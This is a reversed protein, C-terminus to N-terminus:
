SKSLSKKLGVGNELQWLDEYEELPPFKAGARLIFEDAAFVLRSGYDKLFGTQASRITDLVARAEDPTFQRLKPLGLRHRTLGVPVVALSQLSPWLGGLDSITRELVDGDNIGPCIVAQAHLNIGQAALKRLKGMVDRAKITGFLRERAKPDTAHISLYLPSLRYRSIREWDDASLNTLTIYSGQLFSLRYDDDKLYLSPRMGAPMQDVFCFLCNNQCTRVGDFVASTFVVGLGQYERNDVEIKRLRGDVGIAELSFRESDEILHYDILDNLIRGNIRQIRDGPVLGVEEALSGSLVQDIIATSSRKQM